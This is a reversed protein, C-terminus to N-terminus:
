CWTLSQDCDVKQYFKITFKCLEESVVSRHSIDMLDEASDIDWPKDNTDSHVRKGSANKHLLLTSNGLMQRSSRTTTLSSGPNITKQPFLPSTRNLRNPFGNEEMDPSVHNPSSGPLHSNQLLTSSRRSVRNLPSAVRAYNTGPTSIENFRFSKGMRIGSTSGRIATMFTREQSVPTSNSQQPTEFPLVESSPDTSEKRLFISSDTSSPNLISVPKPSEEQSKPVEMQSGSLIGIDPFKGSKMQQQQVQPFLELCKDQWYMQQIESLSPFNLFLFTSLHSNPEQIGAHKQFVPTDEYFIFHILLSTNRKTNPAPPYELKEQKWFCSSFAQKKGIKRNKYFLPIFQFTHKSEMSFGFKDLKWVWVVISNRHVEAGFQLQSKHLTHSLIECNILFKKVPCWSSTLTLDSVILTARWKSISDMRCLVEENIDRSSQFNKEISQLEQHVKHAEFYRHRQFPFAVLLKLVFWWLINYKVNLSM